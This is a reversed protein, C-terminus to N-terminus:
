DPNLFTHPLDLGHKYLFIVEEPTTRNWKENLDEVDSLAVIELMKLTLIESFNAVQLKCFAM